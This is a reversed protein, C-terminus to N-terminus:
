RNFSPFRLSFVSIFASGDVKRKRRRTLPIDLEGRRRIAWFAFWVNVIAAVTGLRSGSALVLSFFFAATMWLFRAHTGALGQYTAKGSAQTWM